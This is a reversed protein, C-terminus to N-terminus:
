KKTFNVWVADTKKGDRRSRGTTDLFLDQICYYIGNSKTSHDRDDVVLTSKTGNGCCYGFDMRDCSGVM